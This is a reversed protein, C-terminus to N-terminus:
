QQVLQQQRANVVRAELTCAPDLESKLPEFDSSGEKTFYVEAREDLTKNPFTVTIDKNFKTGAPGFEYVDSLQKAGLQADLLVLYRWLPTRFRLTGEGARDVTWGDAWGFATRHPLTYMQQAPSRNAEMFRSCANVLRHM